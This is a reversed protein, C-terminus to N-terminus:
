RSRSSCSRTSPLLLLLRLRGRDDPRFRSGQRFAEATHHLLKMAKSSAPHNPDMMAANENLMRRATMGLAGGLYELCVWDRPDAAVAVSLKQVVDRLDSTQHFSTM